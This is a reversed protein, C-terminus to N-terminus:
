LDEAVVILLGDAQHALDGLAMFNVLAARHHLGGLLFPYVICKSYVLIHLITFFVTM